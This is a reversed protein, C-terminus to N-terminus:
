FLHEAVISDWFYSEVKKKMAVLEFDEHFSPLYDMDEFELMMETDTHHSRPSLNYSGLLSYIKGDKMQFRYYKQHWMSSPSNHNYVIISSQSLLRNCIRGNIRSFPSGQDLSFSTYFTIKKENGKPNLFLSHLIRTPSYVKGSLVIEKAEEALTHIRNTIPNVKEEKNINFFLLNNRAQSNGFSFYCRFNRGENKPLISSSFSSLSSCIPSITLQFHKSLTTQLYNAFSPSNMWLDLEYSRNCFHTFHSPQITHFSEEIFNSSGTYVYRNDFICVKMHFCYIWSGGLNVKREKPIKSLAKQVPEDMTDSHYVCWIKESYRELLSAAFSGSIFPLALFITQASDFSSLFIEKKREAQYVLEQQYSFFQM